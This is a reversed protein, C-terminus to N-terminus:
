RAATDWGLLAVCAAGAIAAGVDLAVRPGEARWLAGTLLGAPLATIGVVFNYAGYARGRASAPVLDRVLAKEVPETLGYFVGYVVFLAWVEWAASAAGLGVYVAAYVAWGAAVLRARPLRDALNGGLQAWVVRSLNHVSWLIPIAGTSLGLSRARLLLFADSSNGLSFVALIALYSVLRRDFLRPTPTADTSGIRPTEKVTPPRPERVLAALSTAIAGPVVAVWFIKRLPVNMAVLWTALLPGLVAGANDMAQHFGFARGAREGAADAILADRPSSRLGKGIRDTVRVALVHWPKTALAVLPRAASAIAYGFVVLPKRRATHDAIVGSALKLLSAVTNATGEVLGLYTPSAGLTGVLFVPLLPFVMETGIDTFLSTFGLLVVTAPLALRASATEGRVDPPEPTVGRSYGRTSHSRGHGDGKEDAMALSRGEAGGGSVVLQRGRADLLGLLEALPQRLLRDGDVGHEDTRSLPVRLRVRGDHLHEARLALGEWLGREHGLEVLVVAHGEDELHQGGQRGVIGDQTRDDLGGRATFRGRRVLHERRELADRASPRAGLDTMVVDLRPARKASADAAGHIADSGHAAALRREDERRRAGHGGRHALREAYAVLAHEIEAPRKVVSRDGLEIERALSPAKAGEVRGRM